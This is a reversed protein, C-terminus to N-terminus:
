SISFDAGYWRQQQLLCGVAPRHGSARRPPRDIRSSGCECVECPRNVSKDSQEGVNGGQGPHLSRQTVAMEVWAEPSGHGVIFGHRQRQHAQKVALGM